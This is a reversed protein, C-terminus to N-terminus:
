CRSGCHGAVLVALTELVTAFDGETNLQRGSSAKLYGPERKELLLSVEDELSQETLAPRPECAQRKALSEASAFLYYVNESQALIDCSNERETVGGGLAIVCDRFGLLEPLLAAEAARFDSESEPIWDSIKKQHRSELCADADLFPMELKEALARGLTTKGSARAGVLVIPPQGPLGKALIPTLFLRLVLPMLQSETVMIYQKVMQRLLMEAGFVPRAGEQMARVLLPTASPSYVMDLVPTGPSIPQGDLPDGPMSDSGLPTAQVIASPEQVAKKGWPSTNAGFEAALSSSAEERRASITLSYGQARAEAAFARAAGGAGLLLIPQAQAAPPLGADQLAEMAAVGDTNAAGWEGNPLRLLTNASGATKASQHHKSAVDMAQLKNPATVSFGQWAPHCNELFGKLDDTEVAVYVDSKSDAQFARNWLLPSRSHSVPKGLVGYLSGFTMPLGELPLEALEDIGFQGPATARGPACAYILPAGYALAEIRTHKGGAGQAFGVLPHEFKEYWKWIRRSEEENDAWLVVKLLDGERCLLKMQDAVEQLNANRGPLEHFSHISNAGSQVRHQGLIPCDVFQTQRLNAVENLMQERWEPDGDFLGGEEKPLCTAIVPKPSASFLRELDWDSQAYDLRLEIWDAQKGWLAIDSSASAPDEVLLSLVRTM